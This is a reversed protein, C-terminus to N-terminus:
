YGTSEAAIAQLYTRNQASINKDSYHNGAPSHKFIIGYLVCAALYTGEKTPHGDYNYLVLNPKSGLSRAFALGAPAVVAGLEAGLAKYTEALNVTTVGYSLSDPREWTMLLITRAGIQRIERDFKRAFDYFKKRDLIPIQSQEQLVVYDWGGQRITQLAKGDNWHRELTYGGPALRMTKISPALGELQKDIGDNFYTYSNGIFLIRTSAECSNMILLALAMCVIFVYKERFMAKM